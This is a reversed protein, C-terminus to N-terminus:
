KRTRCTRLDPSSKKDSYDRRLLGCFLSGHPRHCSLCMAVQHRTHCTCCSSVSPMTESYDFRLLSPFPSGHPRHCSLCMVVENKSAVDVKAPDVVANLDLRAVPVTPDYTTYGSFEGEPIVSDAPHRLWPSKGSAGPVGYLNRPNYGLAESGHCQGCLYSISRSDNGSNAGQYDNHKRPNANHEWKYGEENMERGLVGLLFRYSTGVTKGDSPRAPDYAHHAGKMAEYPYVKNRDGHCGYKGACTLRGSSFDLSPDNLGPPSMTDPAIDAFGAVNHGYHNGKSAVYYFNGGALDTSGTHYVYPMSDSRGTNVNSITGHCIVCYNQKEKISEKEGMLETHCQSCDKNSGSAFAAENLILFLFSLVIGAWSYRKVPGM